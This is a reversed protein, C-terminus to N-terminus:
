IIDSNYLVNKGDLIYKIHTSLQIDSTGNVTINPNQTLKTTFSTNAFIPSPVMNALTSISVM